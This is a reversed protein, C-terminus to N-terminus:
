FTFPTVICANRYKANSPISEYINFWVDNDKVSGSVAKVPVITSFVTNPGVEITNTPPNSIVPELETFFLM